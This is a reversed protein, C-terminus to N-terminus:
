KLLERFRWRELLRLGTFRGVLIDIVVPALFVWHPYTLAWERLFSLRFIFYGILAIIITEGTLRIAEQLSKGTQVDIFEEALLILFIIPFISIATLQRLGLFSAAFFMLLVGLTVAWILLAMRPLYHLRLRRLLRRGFIAMLLITTFLLLGTGIGAVAFAVAIITPILIGFGRFGVLHRATAAVSAALPLLLLLVVTEESVGNAIAQSIISQFINM